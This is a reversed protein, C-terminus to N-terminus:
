HFFLRQCVYHKISPALMMLGNELLEITFVEILFIRATAPSKVAVATLALGMYM